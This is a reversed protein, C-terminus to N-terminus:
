QDTFTVETWDLILDSDESETELSNLKEEMLTMFAEKEKRRSFIM